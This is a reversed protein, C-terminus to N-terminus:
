RRRMWESVTENLGRSPAYLQPLNRGTVTGFATGSLRTHGVYGPLTSPGMVDNPSHVSATNTPEDEAVPVGPGQGIGETGYLEADGFDDAQDWPEVPAAQHRAVLPARGVRLSSSCWSSVMRSLDLLHKRRRRRAYTTLSM